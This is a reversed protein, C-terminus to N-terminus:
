KNNQQNSRNQRARWLASLEIAVRSIEHTYTFNRVFNRANQAIHKYVPDKILRTINIFDTLNRAIPIYHIWPQLYQNYSNIHGSEVRFVVSGSALRWFLGWANTNGDVDVVGRYRTWDVELVKKGRINMSNLLQLQNDCLQVLRVIKVDVWSVTKALNCMRVRLLDTCKEAKGTTAGRWFVKPVRKEYSIQTDLRHILAKFGSFRIFEFDPQYIPKGPSTYLSNVDQIRPYSQSLIDHTKKLRSHSLLPIGLNSLLIEMEVKLSTGDHLGFVVAGSETLLSCSRLRNLFSLQHQEYFSQIQNLPLSGSTYLIDSSQLSIKAESTNNNQFSKKSFLTPNTPNVYVCGYHSYGYSSLINVIESCLSSTKLKLFIGTPSKSTNKEEKTDNL